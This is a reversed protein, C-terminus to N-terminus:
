RGPTGRRAEWEGRLIGYAVSDEFRSGKLVHERLLGERSMGIKVMVRGSAPNRGFHHAHIRNLSLHRFGYEIVARAAETCYGRNWFGRGIWFGLEARQFRQDINLGIAGVLDGSEKATIALDVQEGTRYKPLHTAIWEEAMGEKYPHPINLTTDAIAPDGALERVRPADTLAFPRLLLRETELTPPSTM